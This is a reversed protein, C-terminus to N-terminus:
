LCDCSVTQGCAALEQGCRLAAKYSVLSTTGAQSTVYKLVCGRTGQDVTGQCSGSENNFKVM